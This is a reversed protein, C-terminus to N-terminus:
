VENLGRACERRLTEVLAGDDGILRRLIEEGGTAKKAV